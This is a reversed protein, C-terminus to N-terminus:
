RTRPSHQMLGNAFASGYGAQWFGYLVFFNLDPLALDTLLLMGLVTGVSTTIGIYRRGLRAGFSMSLLVSGVFGGTLGAAALKLTDNWESPLAFNIFVAARTAAFNALTAILILSPIAVKSIAQVRYLMAGYFLGFAVGPVLYVPYDGPAICTPPPTAGPAPVISRGICVGFLVFGPGKSILLLVLATSFGSILGILAPYRYRFSASILTFVTFIGPRRRQTTRITDVARILREMNAHFDRGTDIPAANLHSLAQLSLPLQAADPMRASGILVPIIPIDNRLATELEFRVFDNADKIRPSSDEREGLWHEGIIVLM